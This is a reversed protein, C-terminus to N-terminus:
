RVIIVVRRNKPEDVGDATPVALEREGRGVAHVLVPPFGRQIVLERIASARQLSLKDNLEQTGVSDTHGVILIEGGPRAVAQALIGSLAGESEPTLASGGAVFYLTFREAVPPQIALLEPYRLHVDQANTQDAAIVGRQSVSAVEFPTTMKWTENAARVEVSSKPHNEQPLLTVRTTPACGALTVIFVLALLGRM